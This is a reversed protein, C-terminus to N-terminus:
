YHLFIASSMSLWFHARADALPADAAVREMRSLAARAIGRAGVMSGFVVQAHMAEQYLAQTDAAPETAMLLLSLERFWEVQGTQLAAPLVSFMTKYWLPDRSSLWALAERGCRAAERNDARWYHALSQWAYLAGRVEGEASCALGREAHALAAEDD